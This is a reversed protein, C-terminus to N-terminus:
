WLMLSLVALLLDITSSVVSHLLGLKLALRVAFGSLSTTVMLSVLTCVIFLLMLSNYTFFETFLLECILKGHIVLVILLHELIDLYFGIVVNICGLWLDLLMVVLLWLITVLNGTLSLLLLFDLLLRQLSVTVIIILGGSSVNIFVGVLLLLVYLQLHLLLVLDISLFLQPYLLLLWLLRWNMVLSSFGVLLMRRRPWICSPLWSVLFSSWCLSYRWCTSLFRIRLNSSSIIMIDLILLRWIACILSRWLELGGVKWLICMNVHNIMWHSGFTVHAFSIEVEM